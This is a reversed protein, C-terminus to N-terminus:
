MRSVEPVGRESGFPPQRPQTGVGFVIWVTEPNSLIDPNDAGGRDGPRAM